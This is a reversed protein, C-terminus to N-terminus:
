TGLLPELLEKKTTQYSKTQKKSVASSFSIVDVSHVRDSQVTQNYLEIKAISMNNNFNSPSM